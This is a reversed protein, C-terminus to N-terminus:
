YKSVAFLDEGTFEINEFHAFNTVNFYTHPSALRIQAKEGAEVDVCVTLYYEKEERSQTAFFTHIYECDLALFYFKINDTIPQNSLM